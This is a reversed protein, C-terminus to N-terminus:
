AVETFQREAAELHIRASDSSEGVFGSALPIPAAIPSRKAARELNFKVLTQWTGGHDRALRAQCRTCFSEWRDDEVNFSAFRRSRHHGMIQCLINM